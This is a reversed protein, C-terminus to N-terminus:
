ILNLESARAVAQTRSSVDLKRYINKLHVKVTNLSIFLKDALDRNSLGSAILTLVDRERATLQERLEPCGLLSESTAESPRRSTDFAEIIANVYSTSAPAPKIQKLLKCITPGEDAFVRIFRNPEGLTIARSLEDLAAQERDGAKLIMSRLVMIKLRQGLLSLSTAHNELKELLPLIEDPQRTELAIRVLILLEQSRSLDQDSDLTLGSTEAWKQAEQPNNKALAIRAKYLYVQTLLVPSSLNRANAEARKLLENASEEDGTLHRIWALVLYGAIFYVNYTNKEIGSLAFQLHQNAEVLRNQEMLISSLLIHNLITIYIVNEGITEMFQRCLEEAQLLNGLPVHVQIIANVSRSYGYVNESALCLRKAEELEPLAAACQGRILAALGLYLYSLGRNFDDEPDLHELARRAMTEGDGVAGSVLKMDALLNFVEGLRPDNDQEWATQAAEIYKTYDKPKGMYYLAWAYRMCLDPRTIIEQDEITELWGTVTAHEGSQIMSWALTEILNLASSIDGGDLYHNVAQSPYGNAEYWKAAQRHLIEPGPFGPVPNIELQYRLLDSFLHHYRFWERRLDLPIVFLNASELYELIDRSSRQVLGTEVDSRINEDSGSVDRGTVADCLSGCLMGLISTQLLFFRIESTQRNLVEELLYDLIYRNDGAFSSIFGSADNENRLSLAALQLGAAWGETREELLTIDRETLDATVASSILSSIEPTTFRLDSGRIENLQGKARLQALPFPPDTRTIILLHVQRPLHNLFFTLTEHVHTSSIHHYDDLVLILESKLRNLENLLQTLVVQLPPLQPAKLSNLLSNGLGDQVIQLSTAIYKWFRVPDSDVTELSVWAKGGSQTALWESVLTTKGYGAPASVLTLQCGDSIGKSLRVTLRHRPVLGSRVIPIELKTSLLPLTDSM